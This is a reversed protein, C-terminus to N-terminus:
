SYLKQAGQLGKCGRTLPIGKYAALLDKLLFPVGTFPGKPLGAKLAKQGEDAMDTVVANIKPNLTEIREMAAEYVDAESVEGKRILEALGLGDYQGYEKFKGM